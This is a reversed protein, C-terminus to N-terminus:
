WYFLQSPSFPLLPFSVTSLTKGKRNHGNGQALRWYSAALLVLSMFLGFIITVFVINTRLACVLYILTLLAMFLPFFALPPWLNAILNTTLAVSTVPRLSCSIWKESPHLRRIHFLCQFKTYPYKWTHVLIWGVYEIRFFWISHASHLLPFLTETSFSLIEGLTM